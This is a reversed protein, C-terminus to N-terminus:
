IQEVRLEIRAKRTAWDYTKSLHAEVIQSDDDWVIANAADTVAKFLNDLDPKIDPRDRVRKQPPRMYFVAEVKLPGKFPAGIQQSKLILKVTNEFQRTTSPTYAHGGRSIRPRGKAVPDINLIYGFTM